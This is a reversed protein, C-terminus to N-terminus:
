KLLHVCDKGCSNDECSAIQLEKEPHWCSKWGIVPIGNDDFDVPLWIYRSDALSEPRWVDAMFIFADEKGYVPLVCTSQGGFTLEADEGVCPNGYSEWPGWISDAGYLRAENPKWGTCGSAILWYKGDRKFMAPAENHGGPFIRMYRGTHDTYDDTLEAIHLTLNEESSYIHYAKGDTDVFLTMDRSMQGETMDRRVFLGGEVANMWEPSWWKDFSEPKLKSKRQSKSMNQPFKGANVRGSRIFKYPGQPSDSVALGTRAAQYGKGKLELHFWMVFKGTAANYIVKPREMICGREIDHGELDEVVPLSIGEYTWNLLDGSSYCSIGGGSSFGKLPRHEGFWYYKGSHFLVGGGHANIHNDDTDKWIDGSAIGASKKQYVRVYVIGYKMPLAEDNVPGGNIGGLALNLLLYQPKHFPNEGKGIRGNVTASLPVENLLEDDLYLRIFEEDWDMRWIHFESAWEPQKDTFYSYPVKKSNWVADYKKDNGWAVNALIHPVGNIRYYEMIDIEGCSPWEVGSGLTWIAPWAGDAVPIRARVEFRGYLFEKKGATHLSSSTYDIKERKESWKDSGQRYGPNFRNNEKRGEIILYGDKCYANDPQYWQVEENRVFGNEYNWASSDPSGDTDFEESWVLKWEQQAVTTVSFLLTMFLLPFSRLM